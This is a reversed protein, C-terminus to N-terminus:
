RWIFIVMLDGSGEAKDYQVEEEIGEFFTKREQDGGPAIDKM